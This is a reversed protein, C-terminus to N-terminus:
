LLEVIRQISEKIVAACEEYTQASHGMPDPVGLDYAGLSAKAFERLLYTRKTVSPEFHDIQYRHMSTMALILDAKKVMMRTLCRARHGSADIGEKKLIAITELTPAGNLFASTGASSVEVDKRGKLAERLFYEAMVSRCSNGTCVFLIHKKNAEKEIEELSVPGPRLIKPSAATLDVVTSSAGLSVEGSDIAM